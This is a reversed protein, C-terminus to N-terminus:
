HASWLYSSALGKQELSTRLSRRGRLLRSKVAPVSLGLVDAAEQLSYDQDYYDTVVEQIKPPLAELETRLLLMMQKKATRHEPNPTQDAIDWSPEDPNSPQVDRERRSKKKRLVTLAANVGIATIWTSFKASQRFRGLNAYARLLTEQLADEADERHRVISFIKKRAASTHRLCLEAFAEHDGLQAGLILEDDTRAIHM